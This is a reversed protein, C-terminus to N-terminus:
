EITTKVISYEIYAFVNGPVSRYKLIFRNEKFYCTQISYGADIITEMAATVKREIENWASEISYFVGAIKLEKRATIGNKIVIAYVTKPKSIPFTEEDTM